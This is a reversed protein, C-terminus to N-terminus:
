KIPLKLRDSANLAEIFNTTKKDNECKRYIRRVAIILFDLM